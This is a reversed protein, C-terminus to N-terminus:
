KQQMTFQALQEENLIGIDKEQFCQTNKRLCNM